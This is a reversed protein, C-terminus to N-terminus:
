RGLGVRGLAWDATGVVDGAARGRQGASRGANRRSGAGSPPNPRWPLFLLRRRDAGGEALIRDLAAYGENGGVEMGAHDPAGPKGRVARRGVM